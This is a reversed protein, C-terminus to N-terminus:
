DEEYTGIIKYDTYSDLMSEIGIIARELVDTTTAEDMDEPLEIIIAHRPAKPALLAELETDLTDDTM